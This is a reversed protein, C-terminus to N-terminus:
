QLVRTLEEVLLSAPTRRSLLPKRISAYLTTPPVVDLDLRRLSTGGVFGAILADPFV